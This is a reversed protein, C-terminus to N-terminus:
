ISKRLTMPLSIRVNILSLLPGVTDWDIHSLFMSKVRGTKFGATFPGPVSASPPYPSGVGLVGVRGQRTRVRKGTEREGERGGRGERGEKKDKKERKAM